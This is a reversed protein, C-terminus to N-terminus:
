LKQIFSEFFFLKSDFEIEYSKAHLFMRKASPGGYLEDGLIPFGLAALQVRIQHRHGTMLKIELLSSDAVKDYEIKKVELLAEVGDTEVVRMQSGKPGYAKLLHRHEGELNFDGQVKALYFKKKVLNHFNERLEKYVDELKIYCLVGSTEFDLRYLLGREYSSDNVQLVRDGYEARIFNLCTNAESYTQPHGHVKYPKDFVLFKEDEFIIKISPGKYFPAIMLHNAIDISISFEDKAKLPSKLRKYHLRNKLASKTIPFLDLVAELQSSYDKLSSFSIRSSM